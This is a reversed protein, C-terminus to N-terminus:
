LMQWGSKWRDTNVLLTAEIFLLGKRQIEIFQQIEGIFNLSNDISSLFDLKENVNRWCIHGFRCNGDSKTVNISSIM